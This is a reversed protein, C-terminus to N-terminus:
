SGRKFEEVLPRGKYGSGRATRKFGQVYEEMTKGGQEMRRLEVVKVLEEEREGFEKRFSTLFEEVSEYEVEGSELEEMINEKWIDVSRGQV